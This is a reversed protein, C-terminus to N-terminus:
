KRPEEMTRSTRNIDNELVRLEQKEEALFEKVVQGETEEKLIYSINYTRLEIAWMVLWRSFWPNRLIQKIPGDMIVRVEHTRFCKRLCRTTHVLAIVAKEKLTYCIEMGQLPRDGTEKRAKQLAKEAKTMWMFAGEADYGRPIDRFSLTLEPLKEPDAKIGKTTVMYELFKGEEIGFIFENPNLKMNVLHDVKGSAVVDEIQKKLHYCDNTSHGRDGHNDCFKNLIQKEHTGILPPPPSLNITDMALIEKLTKTLLTFTERRAYPDCTQMNRRFERQSGRGRSM